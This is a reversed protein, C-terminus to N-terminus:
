YVAVKAGSECVWQSGGFWVKAASECCKRLCLCTQSVKARWWRMHKGNTSCQAESSGWQQDMKHITYTLLYAHCSQSSVWICCLEHPYRLSSRLTALSILYSPIVGLYSRFLEPIAYGAQEGRSPIVAWGRPIGRSCALYMQTVFRTFVMARGHQMPRGAGHAAVAVTGSAGARCNSLQGTGARAGDLERGSRAPQVDERKCTIQVASRLTQGQVCPVQAREPRRARRQAWAKAHAGAVVSVGTGQARTGCTYKTSCPAPRAM